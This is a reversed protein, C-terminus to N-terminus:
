NFQKKYNRIRYAGYININHLAWYPHFKNGNKKIKFNNYDHGVLICSLEQM